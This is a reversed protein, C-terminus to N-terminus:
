VAFLRRVRVHALFPQSQSKIFDATCLKPNNRSDTAMARAAPDDACNGDGWCVDGLDAPELGPQGINRPPGANSPTAPPLKAAFSLKSQLKLVALATFDDAAIPSSRTNM